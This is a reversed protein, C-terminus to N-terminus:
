KISEKLKSFVVEYPRMTMRIARAAREYEPSIPPIPPLPNLIAKRMEDGFICPIAPIKMPSERLSFAAAVRLSRARAAALAMM